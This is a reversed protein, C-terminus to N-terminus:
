LIRLVTHLASCYYSTLPVVDTSNTLISAYTLSDTNFMGSVNASLSTVFKNDNTGPKLGTSDVTGVTSSVNTLSGTSVIQMSLSHLLMRITLDPMMAGTTLCLAMLSVGVRATTKRSVRLVTTLLRLRIRVAGSSVTTMMTMRPIQKLLINFLPLVGTLVVALLIGVQADPKANVDQLMTNIPMPIAGNCERMTSICLPITVICSNITSICMYMKINYTYLKCICALYKLTPSCM